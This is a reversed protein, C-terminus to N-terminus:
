IDSKEERDEKVAQDQRIVEEIKQYIDVSYQIAGDPLFILQPLIKILMREGLQRRIFGNMKALVNKVHEAKEQNLISYYVKCERLDPSTQVHTVSFMTM